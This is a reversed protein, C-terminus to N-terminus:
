VRPLNNVFKGYSQHQGCLAYRMITAFGVNASSTLGRRLQGSRSFQNDMGSADSSNWVPLGNGDKDYAFWRDVYKQLRQYGNGRLWEYGTGNQQSGMVALQALFPKFMQTPRKNVIGLTRSIFGDPEQKALFMQLNSFCYKNVGYYSLYVNEFYLDWDYYEGYAYGTLLKDKSGPYAHLGKSHIDQNVQILRAKLATENKLTATHPRVPSATQAAVGAGFALAIVLPSFRILHKRGVVINQVVSM